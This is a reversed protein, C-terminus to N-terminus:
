RGKEGVAAAKKAAEAAGPFGELVSKVRSAMETIDKHKVMEMGLKEHAAEIAKVYASDSSGSQKLFAAVKDVNARLGDVGVTQKILDEGFLKKLDMGSEHAADLVRIFYKGGKAAAKTADSAHGLEKRMNALNEMMSNLAGRKTQDIKRLIDSARAEGTLKAFTISKARKGEQLDNVVHLITAEDQYAESAFFLAQGQKERLKYALRDRWTAALEEFEKTNGAARLSQLRKLDARWGPYRELFDGPADKLKGLQGTQLQQLRQFETRWQGIDSLVEEYAHNTARLLQNTGEATHLAEEAAGAAAGLKQAVAERAAKYAYEAEEFTSSLLKRTAGDPAAKLLADTYKAWAAADGIYKRTAMQEYMFQRLADLDANAIGLTKGVLVNRQYLEYVAQTYVNTDFVHGSELGKFKELARFKGNFIKVVREAGEGFVSFDLDSTLDKSGLAKRLLDPKDGTLLLKRGTEKEVEVAADAMSEDLLKGMLKDRYTVFNHMEAASVHGDMFAYKLKGWTFEYKGLLALARAEDAQEIVGALWQYDFESLGTIKLLRKATEQGAGSLEENAVARWLEDVIEKRKTLNEIVSKASNKTAEKLLKSTIASQAERLRSAAAVVKVVGEPDLEALKALDQFNKVAMKEAASLTAEKGRAIVSRAHALFALFDRRESEAMKSVQWFTFTKKALRAGRAVQMAAQAKRVDSRIKFATLAADVGIFGLTKTWGPDRLVAEEFREDGIMPSAGLAFAVEQKAEYTNSVELGSKVFFMVGNWAASVMYAAASGSFATPLGAMAGVIDVALKTDIDAAEQAARLEKFKYPLESMYGRAGVDKVWTQTREDLQMLRPTIEAIVNEFGNGTLRLLKELDDDAINEATEISTRLKKRQEAVAHRVAGILWKERADSNEGFAKALVDPHVAEGLTVKKGNLEGAPLAGLASKPNIRMKFRVFKAYGLAGDETNVAAGLSPDMRRMGEVFRDRVMLMAAHHGYYLDTHLRSLLFILTKSIKKEPQTELSRPDTTEVGQTKAARLLYETWLPSKMGPSSVMRLQATAPFSLLGDAPKAHAVLVAGPQMVLGPGGARSLAIPETRYLHPAIRKAPFEQIPGIAKEDPLLNPKEKPKTKDGPKPAGGPKPPTETKPKDAGPETTPLFPQVKVNFSDYPISSDVRVEIAVTEPLYAEPIREWKTNDGPPGSSRVFSVEASADSAELRWVIKAGGWDLQRLGPVYGPALKVKVLACERSLVDQRVAPEDKFPRCVEFWGKRLLVREYAPMDDGSQALYTYTTDKADSHLAVAASSHEGAKTLIPLNRGVVFLTRRDVRADKAVMGPTAYHPIELQDDLVEAFDIEPAKQMWIESGAQVGGFSGDSAPAFHGVRGAGQADRQTIPDAAYSWRGQMDGDEDVALDVSVTGDDPASPVGFAFAAEERDIKVKAEAGGNLVPARSTDTRATKTGDPSQGVFRIQCRGDGERPPLFLESELVYDRGGHPFRVVAREGRWDVMADGIVLGLRSDLYFVKWRACETVSLPKEEPAAKPEPPPPDQARAAMVGILGCWVALLVRM